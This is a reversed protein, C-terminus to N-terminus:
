SILQKTNSLITRRITLKLGAPYKVVRLYYYNVALIYVNLM